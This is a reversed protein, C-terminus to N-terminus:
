FLFSQAEFSVMLFYVYSPLFFYVYLPLFDKHIIHRILYKGISYLFCWVCVFFCVRSFAKSLSKYSKSHGCIFLIHFHSQPLSTSLLLIETPLHHRLKIKSFLYSNAKSSAPFPIKTLLCCHAIVWFPVFNYLREQIFPINPPLDPAATEKYCWQPNWQGPKLGM